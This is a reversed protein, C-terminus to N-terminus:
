PYSAGEKYMVGWEQALTAQAIEQRMWVIGVSKIADPHNVPRATCSHTGCAVPAIEEPSVGKPKKKEPLRMEM